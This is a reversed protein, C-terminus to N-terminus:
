KEVAGLSKQGFEALIINMEHIDYFQEKIFYVIIRDFEISPSLAHGAKKLLDITIDLSLELAVALCIATNKSPLHNPRSSIDSFTYRTINAKKWVDSDKPFREQKEDILRFLMQKFSENTRKEIEEKLKELSLDKRAKKTATGSIETVRNQKSIFSQISSHLESNLSFKTDKRLVLFVSIDNELLFDGIAKVAVRLAKENPYGKSGTSILPFAISGCNHKKALALSNRYCAYLINREGEDSGQWAPGVTHIIYKSLALGETAVASGTKCNGIANCIRQLEGAGAAKFIAGCVGGSNQLANNATNVIADTRM